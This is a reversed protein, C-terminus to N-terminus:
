KIMQQQLSHQQFLLVPVLNEVHPQQQQLQQPPPLLQLIMPVEEVSMVEMLIPLFLIQLQPM